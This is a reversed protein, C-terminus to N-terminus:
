GRLAAFVGVVAIALGLAIKLAAAAARGLVAGWGARLAVGPSFQRTYEFLAAGAFSGVFAGIVSGIIPVPVGVVAGVIGGLLAGWGARRSGGYREAFWFGLWWEVVEGMLALGLVVAITVAGIAHFGTLWGYGIVGLVMVWLGPLGLAALVLGAVCCVALLLGPLIASM